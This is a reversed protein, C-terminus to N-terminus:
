DNVEDNRSVEREVAVSAAVAGVVAEVVTVARVRADHVAAGIQPGRLGQVAARAAVTGTNVAAARTRALRWSALSTAQARATRAGDSADDKEDDSADDSADDSRRVCECALLLLEFREPRRWADCRDLLRVRQEADLLADLRLTECERGALEAVERCDAPIRWRACLTLLDVATAGTQVARESAGLRHTVVAFRAPLPLERRAALDITQRWRIADPEDSAWDTAIEPMLRALAGCDHLVDFMRSPQAEMLGRSLEQWVREAVLADVEGATVMHQMLAQTEAAVQFDVFRAAFRAVRLIRVPDEAFAPSVHRLLRAQLDRQGGYPDIVRGTEDQAMANITLDRRQLDEELTVAPDAHFVFGHYGPATKRETRALAYEQKTVPHLFVPFDRGVPLYGAARMAEPTTGTVVWDVDSGPRGLLADRVAGGVRWAKM